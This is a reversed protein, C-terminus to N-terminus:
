EPSRWGLPRRVVLRPRAPRVRCRAQRDLVLQDSAATDVPPPTGDPAPEAVEGVVVPSTPAPRRAGVEGVSADGCWRALLRALLALLALPVGVVWVLTYGAEFSGISLVVAFAAMAIMTIRLSRRVDGALLANTEQDRDLQSM